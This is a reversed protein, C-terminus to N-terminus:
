INKGHKKILIRLADWFSVGREILEKFEDLFRQYTM